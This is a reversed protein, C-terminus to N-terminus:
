MDAGAASIKVVHKVGAAKAADVLRTALEVQNNAMPTLLFVKDAGKVAAAITEPKDWDFDVPTVNTGKVDGAKAASRVAARVSIGSKSALAQILRKGITGTAGTVLITTM